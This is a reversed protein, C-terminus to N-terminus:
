TGRCDTEEVTGVHTTTKDAPCPTCHWRKEVPNTLDTSAVDKYFGVSCPYCQGTAIDLEKGVPCHEVIYINLKEILWILKM